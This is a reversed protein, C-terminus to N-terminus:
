AETPVLDYFQEFLGHERLFENHQSLGTKFAVNAAISAALSVVLIKREHKVVFNKISVVPNQKTATNESM